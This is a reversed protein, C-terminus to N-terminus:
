KSLRNYEKKYDEKEIHSYIDITTTVSDHGLRNAILAWNVPEGRNLYERVLETAHTHRLMHPHVKIGTRKEFTRFISNLTTEKMPQGHLEKRKCNTVIFLFDFKSNSNVWDTLIYTDILNMLSVPLQIFRDRGYGSKARAGNYNDPRFRIWLGSEGFDIDELKIGLLEGRRIGGEKLILLIIKDRLLNANDLIKKFDKELLIKPHTKYKKSKLFNKRVIQRKRTHTLLDRDKGGLSIAVNKYIVPNVKIKKTVYLYNYFSCVRDLIENETTISLEDKTETNLNYDLVDVNGMFRFPNKLWLKFEALYEPKGDLDTIDLEHMRLFIIFYRLLYCYNKITNPAVERNARAALMNIYQNIYPIFDLNEDVIYYLKASNAMAEVIKLKSFWVKKM